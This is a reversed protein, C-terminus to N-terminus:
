QIITLVQHEHLIISSHSSTEDGLPETDTSRKEVTAQAVATGEPQAAAPQVSSVSEGQNVDDSVTISLDGLGETGDAQRDPHMSDQTHLNAAELLELRSRLQENEMRVSQLEEISAQQLKQTLQANQARLQEVERQSELLAKAAETVASVDRALVDATSPQLPANHSLEMQESASAVAPVDGQRDGAELPDLASNEQVTIETHVLSKAYSNGPVEMFAGTNGCAAIECEHSGSSGSQVDTLIGDQVKVESAQPLINSTTSHSIEKHQEMAEPESPTSTSSVDIASSERTETDLTKAKSVQSSDAQGEPQHKSETTNIPQDCVEKADGSSGPVDRRLETELKEKAARVQAMEEQCLRLEEGQRQLAADRHQLEMLLGEIHSSQSEFAQTLQQTQSTVQKQLVELRNQALKARGVERDREGRLSDCENRLRDVEQALGTSRADKENRSHEALKKSAGLETIFNKADAEQSVMTNHLNAAQCFSVHDMPSPIIDEDNFVMTKNDDCNYDLPLYKLQLNEKPAKRLEELEAELAAVKTLLDEKGRSGQREEEQEEEEQRGKEREEREQSLEVRLAELDEKLRGSEEEMERGKREMESLAERLRECEKREGAAEEDRERQSEEERGEVAALAEKLRGSERREEELQSELKQKEAQQEQAKHRLQETQTSHKRSLQKLKTRAEAEARRQKELDDLRRELEQKADRLEDRLAANERKLDAQGGGRSPSQCPSLPTPKNTSCEPSSNILADTMQSKPCLQNTEGEDCSGDEEPAPSLGEGAEDKRESDEDRWGAKGRRGKGHKGRPSQESDFEEIQESDIGEGPERDSPYKARQNAQEKTRDEKFAKKKHTQTKSPSPREYSVVPSFGEGCTSSYHPSMVVAAAPAPPKDTCSLSFM